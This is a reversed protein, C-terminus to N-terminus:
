SITALVRRVEDAGQFRPNLELVHQLSTRAAQKDGNQLHALGLHYHINANAANQQAADRLTAVALASLGKKYYIWGLTDSVSPDDPLVTKATQALQLATDLNGGRNAYDWALNNAAVVARPDLALVEEFHKRAEDPKGQLMLINGIMTKAAVPRPNLRAFEEFSKRAEDLRNQSRYLVGLASYAQMNGPDVELLKRYSAEAKEIDGTRTYTTGALVLLAPDDPTKALAAEVRARAADPKRETLDVDILGSLPM